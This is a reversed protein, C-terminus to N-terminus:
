KNVKAGDYTVSLSSNCSNTSVKTFYPRYLKVVNAETTKKRRGSKEPSPFFDDIKVQSLKTREQSEDAEFYHSSLALFSRFIEPLKKL